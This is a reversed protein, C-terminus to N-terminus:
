KAIAKIEPGVKEVVKEAPFWKDEVKLPKGAEHTMIDLVIEYRVSRIRGSRDRNRLAEEKAKEIRFYKSGSAITRNAAELFAAKRVIEATM